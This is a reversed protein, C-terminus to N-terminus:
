SKTLKVIFVILTLITSISMVAILIVMTMHMTVPTTPRGGAIRAIDLRHPALALRLQDRPWLAFFLRM